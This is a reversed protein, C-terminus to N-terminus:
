CQFCLPLELRVQELEFGGHSRLYNIVGQLEGDNAFGFTDAMFSKRKCGSEHQPVGVVKINHGWQGSSDSLPSQHTSWTMIVSYEGEMNSIKHLIERKGYHVLELLPPDVLSRCYLIVLSWFSLVVSRDSSFYKQLFIYVESCGVLSILQLRGFSVSISLNSSIKKQVFIFIINHISNAANYKKNCASSVM